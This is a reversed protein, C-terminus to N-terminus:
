YQWLLLVVMGVALTDILLTFYFPRLDSYAPSTSPWLKVLEFAVVGAIKQFFLDAQPTNGFTFWLVMMFLWLALRFACGAFLAKGIFQVCALLATKM